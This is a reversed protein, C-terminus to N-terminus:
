ARCATQSKTAGDHHERLRAEGKGGRAKEVALARTDRCRSAHSIKTKALAVHIGPQGGGSRQTGVTAQPVQEGTSTSATSIKSVRAANRTTPAGRPRALEPPGGRCICIGQILTTAKETTVCKTSSRNPQRGKGGDYEKKLSSVSQSHRQTPPRRRCPPPPADCFSPRAPSRDNGGSRVQFSGRFAPYKPTEVKSASPWPPRPQTTRQHLAKVCLDVPLRWTKQGALLKCQVAHVASAALHYFSVLVLKPFPSGLSDKM